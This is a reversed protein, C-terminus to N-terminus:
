DLYKAVVTLVKGAFDASCRVAFVNLQDILFRIAAVLFVVFIGIVILKIIVTEVVISCSTTNPLAFILLQAIIQPYILLLALRAELFSPIPFCRNQRNGLGVQFWRVNTKLHNGM